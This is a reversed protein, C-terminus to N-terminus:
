AKLLSLVAARSPEGHLLDMHPAAVTLEQAHLAQAYAAPLAASRRTVTGDGDALLSGRAAAPAFRELERNRFLLRGGDSELYIVQALSPLGSGVLNLLPPAGAPTRALPAHLREAIRGARALQDQLYRFRAEIAGQALRGQMGRLLGWGHRRWREADAMVGPLPELAASRVCDADALPLLQYCSPFSAVATANLLSRNLGTRAGHQMDHFSLMAGRFPAGAILVADVLAAGEWTEVASEPPQSGYRLFYSSILGGMSHGVLAIRRIGEGRLRTTCAHLAQVAGLNDRRWDYPLEVIRAAGSYAQGLADLWPQYIQM